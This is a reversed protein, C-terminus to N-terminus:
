AIPIELKSIRRNLRQVNIGLLRSAAAKCNQTRRLAEIITRREVDRLCLDSRLPEVPTTPLIHEPLAAPDIMEGSAMVHTSEMVNALERINGPWSYRCLSAAAAPSLRRRPEDYLDAQLQLFHEALPVVDDRRERLPPLTMVVVNLRFFLDERFEGRRVMSQLDRHTAAVIRVDVPRARPDGVPVVQREQIVRLLKSQMAMPLEGIEDLFLTGGEAARIFGLSDRVAGTFAGRVHGFMESEFLSESLSSCDVPIFPAARRGSRSHLYRALLEKGTGTEGLLMVTCHRDAVTEAISKISELAASKGVLEVSAPELAIDASNSTCTKTNGNM